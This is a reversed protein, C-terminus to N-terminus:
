EAAEARPPGAAPADKETVTCIFGCMWAADRGDAFVGSLGDPVRVLRLLLSRCSLWARFMAQVLFNLL